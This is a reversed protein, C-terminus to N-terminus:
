NRVHLCVVNALLNHCSLITCIYVTCFYVRHIIQILSLSFNYRFLSPHIGRAFHMFYICTFTSFILFHRFLRYSPLLPILITQMYFKWHQKLFMLGWTIIWSLFYITGCNPMPAHCQNLGYTTNKKPQLVKVPNRLSYRTSKVEFRKANLKHLSKYVDLLILRCTLDYKSNWAVNWLTIRLRQLYNALLERTNEWAQQQKNSWLFAM